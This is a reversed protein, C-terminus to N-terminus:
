IRSVDSVWHGGIMDNYLGAVGLSSCLFCDRGWSIWLKLGSAESVDVSARFWMLILWIVACMLCLCLLLTFHELSLTSYPLTDTCLTLYSVSWICVWRVCASSLSACLNHECQSRFWISVSSCKRVSHELCVSVRVTNQSWICCIWWVNLVREFWSFSHYRHPSCLFQQTDAAWYTDTQWWLLSVSVQGSRIHGCM